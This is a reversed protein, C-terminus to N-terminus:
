EWNWGKMHYELKRGERPDHRNGLYLWQMPEDTHNISSHPISFNPPILFATGVPQWFLRNGFLLLSKGKLQCWIEEVEPGHMHPQAMDFADVSVIAVGMPNSFKVGDVIGRGIHAWHMGARPIHDKYSGTKMEKLPEFDPAIEEVIIVAELYHEKCTNFFQYELGAPIFVGTGESLDAKKGGAEVRGVGKAIYFFVQEKEHRTKQTYTDPDLKGHNYAKIYKLAAGPRSPNTPDGPFLYEREIWGGHRVSGSHVPSELYSHMYMEVNTDTEPYRHNYDDLEFYSPIKDQGFSPIKGQAFTLSSFITCLVATLVFVKKM